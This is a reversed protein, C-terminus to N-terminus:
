GICFDGVIGMFERIGPGSNQSRKDQKANLKTVSRNCSENGKHKNRLYASIDDVHRQTRALANPIDSMFVAYTEQMPIKMAVEEMVAAHLM